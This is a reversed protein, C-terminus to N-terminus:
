SVFTQGPGAFQNPQEDSGVVNGSLTTGTLVSVAADATFVGGGALPDPGPDEPNVMSDPIVGDGDPEAANLSIESDRVTLGGQNYIGGGASGAVNSAVLVGNRVIMTSNARNWLGGGQGFAENNRVAGGDITVVADGGIHLGGGHGPTNMAGTTVNGEAAVDGGITASAFYALGGLVEVGGGSFAAANRAIAADVVELQGGVSAIGGGAGNLGVAANNAIRGGFVVLRGGNNFLGGGGVGSDPDQSLAENETVQVDSRLVMTSGAQNWLGGGNNAAVNNRITGGEFVVSASDGSVHLGGGNGPGNGFGNATNGEGNVGGGLSSRVIYVTGDVIEFGGGARAASNGDITANAAVVIGDISFLGGGSGSGLDASNGLLRGTFLDVRGNDNYIGGGGDIAAEGNAANNQIIVDNRAVLRSGDGVWVGGGQRSASNDAITSQDLVGIVNGPGLHLGGGFAATNPVLVPLGIDGSTFAAGGRIAADVLYVGGSGVSVGGGNRTARNAEFVTRTLDLLAGESLLGGGSANDGSARNSSFVSDRLVLSAGDNYVGGGGNGAEDGLAENAAILTNNRILVGAASGLWLGGGDAAATNEVVQVEDLTLTTGAAAHLGGGNGPNASGDPGAVNNEIRGLRAFVTGGALEVGGGSRNAENGDILANGLILTGGASHIGGGTGDIGDARNDRVFGGYVAVIANENYIGGGNIADNEVIQVDNLTLTGTPTNSRVLIAGGDGVLDTPGAADGDFVRLDRIQVNESADIDFIRSRSQGDLTIGDGLITLSGQLRTVIEFQGGVMEISGALGDAFQITDGDSALDDDAVIADGVTTGLSAALVAERFTVEGDAALTGPSAIAADTLSTVTFTTLLVRNELEDAVVGAIHRVERRVAAARM